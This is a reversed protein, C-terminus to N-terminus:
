LTLGVRVGVGFRTSSFEHPLNEFRTGNPITYEQETIPDYEVVDEYFEQDQYGKVRLGTFDLDVGFFVRRQSSAQPLLWRASIVARIQNGWGTGTSLKKRLLHDDEDTARVRGYLLRWDAHFMSSRDVTGGVGIEPVLYTVRYDIAPTGIVAFEHVTLNADIVQWGAFNDLLQTMRFYSLGGVLGFTWRSGRQLVRYYEASLFLAQGAPKSETYSWIDYTGNGLYSWDTDIMKGSPDGPTVGGTATIQWALRDDVASRIELSAGIAVSNTPFKLESQIRDTGLGIDLEYTSHGAIYSIKPYITIETHSTGADASSEQATLDSGYCLLATLTVFLLDTTFRM